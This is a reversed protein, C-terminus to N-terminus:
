LAFNVSSGSRSLLGLPDCVGGGGFFISKEEENSVGVVSTFLVGVRLLSCGETAEPRPTIVNENGCNGAM